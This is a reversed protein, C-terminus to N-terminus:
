FISPKSAVTLGYVMYYNKLLMVNDEHSIFDEADQRTRFAIPDACGTGEVVRPTQKCRIYSEGLYTISSEYDPEPTFDVFFCANNMKEEYSPNGGYSLGILQRIKFFALASLEEPHGVVSRVVADTDISAARQVHKEAKVVEAWTKPKDNRATM